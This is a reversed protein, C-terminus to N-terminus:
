SRSASASRLARAHRPEDAARASRLDVEIRGHAGSELVQGETVAGSQVAADGIRLEFRGGGFSATGAVSTASCRSARDARRGRGLGRDVGGLAARAVFRAARAQAAASVRAAAHTRWAQM